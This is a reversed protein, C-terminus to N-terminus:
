RRIRAEVAEVFYEDHNEALDGLGSRFRGVVALAKNVRHARDKAVWADLAERVLAAMSRGSGRARERLAAFQTETLRVQTRKKRM